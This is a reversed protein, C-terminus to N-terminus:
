ELVCYPKIEKLLIKFYKPCKYEDYEYNCSKNYINNLAYIYFNNKDDDILQFDIVALARKITKLELLNEM